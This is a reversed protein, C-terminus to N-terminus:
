SSSTRGYVHIVFLQGVKEELTMRRLKSEVLGRVAEENEWPRTEPAPQAVSGAAALWALVVAALAALGLRGMVDSGLKM